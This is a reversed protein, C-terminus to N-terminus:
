RATPTWEECSYTRQWLISGGQVDVVRMTRGVMASDVAAVISVVDNVKLLPASLPMGVEYQRLATSKEGVEVARGGGLGAAQTQIRCPGAHITTADPYESRGTAANFPVATPTSPRRTVVCTATMVAEAVPRHHAEFQSPIVSTNDLGAM